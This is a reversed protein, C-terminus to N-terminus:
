KDKNLMAARHAEIAKKTAEEIMAAVQEKTFTQEQQTKPPTSDEPPAIPNDIAFSNVATPQQVVPDNVTKLETPENTVPTSVTKQLTRNVIEERKQQEEKQLKVILEKRKNHLDQIYLRNLYNAQETSLFKLREIDEEPMNLMYWLKYKKIVSIPNNMIDQFLVKTKIGRGGRQREVPESGASRTYYEAYCAVEASAPYLKKFKIEPIWPTGDDYVFYLKDNM